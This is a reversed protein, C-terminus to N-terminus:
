VLRPRTNTTYTANPTLHSKPTLDSDEMRRLEADDPEYQLTYTHVSYQVEVIRQVVGGGGGGQRTELEEKKRIEVEEEWSDSSSCPYSSGLKRLHQM